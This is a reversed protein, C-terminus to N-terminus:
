INIRFVMEHTVIEMYLDRVNVSPTRGDAQLGVRQLVVVMSSAQVPAYQYSEGVRDCAHGRGGDSGRDHRDRHRHIEDAGGLRSFRDADRAADRVIAAGRDDDLRVHEVFLVVQHCIDERCHHHHIM